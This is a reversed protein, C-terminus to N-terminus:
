SMGSFHRIKVGKGGGGGGMKRDTRIPGFRALGWRKQVDFGLSGIM